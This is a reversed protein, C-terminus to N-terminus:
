IVELVVRRNRAKAAPTGETSLPDTEGRGATELRGADIGYSEALVASVSAARQESLTQNAAEDGDADTHGTIRLRMDPNAELTQAIRKLTGASAPEVDASGSAFTIGYTTLKGETELKSRTDPAGKALRINSLLYTDEDVSMDTVFRLGRIEEEGSWALPIDYAKEDNVYMRMRKGQRWIAIHQPLGRTQGSFHQTISGSNGQQTDKAGASKTFRKSWGSSVNRSVWFIVNRDGVGALRSQTIAEPDAESTLMVGVSGKFRYEDDPIDHILDFELTFNEPFETFDFAVVQGSSKNLKIWKGPATSVTVVELGGMTNYGTPLDGVATRSYDDYQIVEAGPEFDFKSTMSFTPAGAADGGGDLEAGDVATGASASVDAGAEAPPPTSADVPTNGRSDQNKDPGKFVEDVAEETKEETNRELAREVGREAAKRLKRGLQAAAPDPICALAGCLLAVPLATPGLRSM